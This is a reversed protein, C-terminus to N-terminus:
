NYEFKKIWPLLKPYINSMQKEYKKWRDKAHFYLPKIVQNYSTTSINRKKATDSYNLLSDNWNINIFDLIIKIENKLDFILDEYKVSHYNIKLNDTYNIWLGMTKCYFNTADELNLFNVMSNNLEFDQMFCSLIVDCPHRVSFIFKSNPFIRVIEGVFLINLPLKDIYIKSKDIDKIEKKLSDFYINRLKNVRDENLNNLIELNDDQNENISTILNKVMPKEELVEISPHSRLINDLLTTGSRPFGIMFIPDPRDFKDKIFSFKNINNKSFFNKRVDILSIIKNKNFKKYDKLLFNIENSKLFYDYAKESNKIRDYSKGLNLLRLREFKLNPEEFQIKELIIIAEKFLNNEILHISEYLLIIKDNKFLNKGKSILYELKKFDSVREATVVLNHFADINTPMLSLTKEFYIIAKEYNKLKFMVLGLNLNTEPNNPKIQNSRNLYDFAKNFNDLNKEIKGIQLLADYHYMNKLIAKEYFIKADDNKGDEKLCNALNYYPGSQEADITIAKKFFNIAKQQENLNKFAIGLNNFAQWDSPNVKTAIELFKISKKFEKIQVYLSGLLFNIKPHNADIDLIENYILETEKFEKKKHKEIAISIKKEVDM